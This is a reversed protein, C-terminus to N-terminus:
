KGPTKVNDDWRGLLNRYIGEVHDGKLFGFFVGNDTLELSRALKVETCLNVFRHFQALRAGEMRDGVKQFDLKPAAVPIHQHTAPAGRQAAIPTNMENRLTTGADGAQRAQFEIVNGPLDEADVSTLVDSRVEWDPMSAKKITDHHVRKFLLMQDFSDVRDWPVDAFSKLGLEDVAALLPKMGLQAGHDLQEFALRADAPSMLIAQDLSINTLNKKPSREAQLKKVVENLTGSKPVLSEFVGEHISTEIDVATEHKKLRM